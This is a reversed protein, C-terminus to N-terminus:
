EDNEPQEEDMIRILRVYIETTTDGRLVDSLFRSEVQMQIQGRANATIKGLSTPCLLIVYWRWHDGYSEAYSMVLGYDVRGPM